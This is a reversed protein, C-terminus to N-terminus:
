FNMYNRKLMEVDAPCFDYLIIDQHTIWAFESHEKKTLEGCAIEATYFTLHVTFEPYVHTIEDFNKINQITVGLEEQCERIICEEATENPEIKGGPFEWLLELDKGKPRQCILFKGDKQIVAAAVEIM